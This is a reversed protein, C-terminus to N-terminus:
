KPPSFFMMEWSCILLYLDRRAIDSGWIHFLFVAVMKRVHSVVAEKDSRTTNIVSDTKERRDVAKEFTSIPLM